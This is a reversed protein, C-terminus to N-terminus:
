KFKMNSRKKGRGKQKKRQGALTSGLATSGEGKGEARSSVSSLQEFVRLYLSVMSRALGEDTDRELPVETMFVLAYYIARRTMNPRFMLVQLDEIVNAKM